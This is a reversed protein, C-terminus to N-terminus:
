DNTQQQPILEESAVIFRRRYSETLGESPRIARGKSDFMAGSHGELDPSVLLPALREAYTEASKSFFGIAWELSKFLLKRDGLVNSRINTAILGPNLGFFNANSYRNAAELVLIENGAVTKMHQARVKYSKEANLDDPDGRGM